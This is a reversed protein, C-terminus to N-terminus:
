KSNDLKVSSGAIINLFDEDEFVDSLIQILKTQIDLARKDDKCSSLDEQMDQIKKLTDSVKQMKELDM